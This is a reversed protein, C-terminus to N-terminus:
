EESPENVTNDEAETEEEKPLPEHVYNGDIYLYDSVDGEPLADVLVMDKAAYKSYTASLVRGTEKDINLAYM